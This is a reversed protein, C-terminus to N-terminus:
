AMNPLTNGFEELSDVEFALHTLDAQVQVPRQRSYYTIEIQEDSEPAKLFVLESGRQRNTGGSEELGLVDRYFKITRRPRSAIARTCCNTVKSMRTFKAFNKVPPFLSFPPTLFVEEFFNHKRGGEGKTREGPLPFPLENTEPNHILTRGIGDYSNEFARRVIRGRRPSLAPALASTMREDMIWAVTKENGPRCKQPM